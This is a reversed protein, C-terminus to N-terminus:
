FYLLTSIFFIDDALIYQVIYWRTCERHDPLAINTLQLRQDSSHEGRTYNVPLYWQCLTCLKQLAIM